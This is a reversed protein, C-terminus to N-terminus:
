TDREERMIAMEPKLEFSRTEVNFRHTATSVGKSLAVRELHGMVIANRKDRVREAELYAIYAIELLDYDLGEVKLNM